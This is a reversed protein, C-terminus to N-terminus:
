GMEAVFREAFARYGTPERGLIARLALANGGPYGHADYHDCMRAYAEISWKAWGREAAWSKWDELSRKQATVERGLVESFIAAMEAHTLSDGSCLEYTGGRLMPETLVRAIAEGLDETDIVSMKRHPSYPRPYVGNEVVERWEVRVNQMFMSPQVITFALGSEIVAEEIRLKTAHHHMRSMQPHFASSYVFHGVGEAKAAEVARIGIEAEDETFRPSVLLVSEAGALARAVDAGSRFDGIVTGSVGLGTLREASRPNSTLARVSAGMGALHRIAPTGVAGSAGVIVIM